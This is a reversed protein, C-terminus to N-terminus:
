RTEHFTACSQMRKGNAHTYQRRPTPAAPPPLHGTWRRSRYLSIPRVLFWCRPTGKIEPSFSPLTPIFPVRLYSLPRPYIGHHLPRPPPHTLPTSRRRISVFSLDRPSLKRDRSMREHRWAHGSSIVGTLCPMLSAWDRGLQLFASLRTYPAGGVGGFVSRSSLGTYM